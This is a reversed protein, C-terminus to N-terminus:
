VLGRREPRRGPGPVIYDVFTEDRATLSLRVSGELEESHSVEFASIEGADFVARLAPLVVGSTADVLSM